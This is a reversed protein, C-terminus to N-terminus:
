IENDMDENLKSIENCYRNLAIRMKTLHRYLLLVHLFVNGSYKECELDDDPNGEYSKLMDNLTNMLNPNNRFTCLTDIANPEYSLRVIDSVANSITPYYKYECLVLMNSFAEITKQYVANYTELETNGFKGYVTIDISLIDKLDELKFSNNLSTAKLPLFKGNRTRKEVPITLQNYELAYIALIPEIIRNCNKIQQKEAERAQREGAQKTKKELNFDVSFIIILSTILNISFSFLVNQVTSNADCGAIFSGLSILALGWYIHAM